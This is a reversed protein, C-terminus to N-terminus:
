VHARGIKHQTHKTPTTPYSAGDILIINRTFKVEKNGLTNDGNAHKKPSYIKDTDTSKFWNEIEQRYNDGYDINGNNIIESDIEDLKNEKKKETSRDTYFDRTNSIKTLPDIIPEFTQGIQQQINAEGTKLSSYKQKISEKAKVLEELIDSEEKM